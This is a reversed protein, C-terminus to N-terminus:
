FFLCGWSDQKRFIIIAFVMLFRSGFLHSYIGMAKAHDTTVHYLKATIWDQLRINLDHMSVPFKKLSHYFSLTAGTWLFHCFGLLFSDDPKTAAQIHYSELVILRYCFTLTKWLFYLLIECNILTWVLPSRCWETIIYWECYKDIVRHHDRSLFYREQYILLIQYLKASNIKEVLQLYYM